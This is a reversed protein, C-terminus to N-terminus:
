LIYDRLDQFLTTIMTNMKSVDTPEEKTEMVRQAENVLKAMSLYLNIKRELELKKDTLLAVTNSFSSESCERKNSLVQRIESLSFGAYKMVEIYQLNLIDQETYYRYKNEGRLPCVLDIKDYYRLTYKSIGLKESIDRISYQKM